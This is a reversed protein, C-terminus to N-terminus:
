IEFDVSVESTPCHASRSYHEPIQQGPLFFLRESIPINKFCSPAYVLNARINAVTKDPSRASVRMRWEYAIELEPDSFIGRKAAVQEKVIDAFRLCYKTNPYICYNVAMGLELMKQNVLSRGQWVYGLMRNFKDCHTGEFEVRVSRGVPLLEELAQAAREGWAGQSKGYYHTEPTDIGLFRVSYNKGAIDVIATDGDVVRAVTGRASRIGAWDEEYCKSQAVGPIAWSLDTFVLVLNAFFVIARM